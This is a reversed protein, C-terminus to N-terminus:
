NRRRTRKGQSLRGHCWKCAVKQYHPNYRYRPGQRTEHVDLFRMDARTKPKWGCYECRNGRLKKLGQRYFVLKATRREKKPM